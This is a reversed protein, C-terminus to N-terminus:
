EGGASFRNRYESPTTHLRRMFLRRLNQEDVHGTMAAIRKLPLSTEVLLRCATELRMAEVMKAPTRGSKELYIRAFNRSSMGAQDALREVRLDEDLHSAVWAHLEIFRDGASTQATLPVSFQSQGGSRRMFVVLQRATEIATRHGYDQEILALALDIGATVGASTWVSGDRIYIKDPDVKVKPNLEALRDAWEWHTSVRRGDLQGAAALLFAGTCVSCLRRAEPARQRVWEVLGPPTYYQNGKCGGPAILTDISMGDLTALGVTMVPLGSSTTIPGGPESAVIIEYLSPEGAPLNRSATFLTQVPGTLDLLNMDEHALVVVRLPSIPNAM